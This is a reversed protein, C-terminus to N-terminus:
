SVKSIWFEAAAAVLGVILGIGVPRAQKVRWPWFRVGGLLMFATFAIAYLTWDLWAFRAVFFVVIAVAFAIVVTVMGPYILRPIRLKENM